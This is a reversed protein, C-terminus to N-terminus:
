KHQPMRSVLSLNVAFGEVQFHPTVHLAVKFFGPWDDAERVEVSASSLPHTAILDAGPNQMETVLGKLWNNLELALVEANKAAGINERQLVKLYHALRSSLFIYPLQANIRSNASAAPDDFKEWKKCSAASFFCAYDKNKYASLPIFGQASFAFERSEPILVETPIQMQWGKGEDFIHLPLNEVKGGAQPGRIQVCWGNERFSRVMNAAFPFVANGWLYNSDSVRVEEQFSFGGTHMGQAGYPLRLLFRPFALASYRADESERFSRWRTYEVKDMYSELDDIQAVEQMNKKGFFGADVGSLFPCHAAAAVQSLQELLQVSRADSQFHYNGIIAALPEGGPTDYEDSYVWKYLTSLSLDPSDEFDEQLEEKTCQVIELSVNSRSDFQQCLYELSRWAAELEQFESDHFVANLGASIKDDIHSVLADVLSRDVKDPIQSLAQVGELFIMLSYFMREGAAHEILQDADAYEMLDRNEVWDYNGLIDGLYDKTIEAEMLNEKKDAILESSHM